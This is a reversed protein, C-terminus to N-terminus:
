NLICCYPGVFICYVNFWFAFPLRVALCLRKQSQADDEKTVASHSSQLM